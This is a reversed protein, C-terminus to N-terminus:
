SGRQIVPNGHRHLVEYALKAKEVAADPTVDAFTLARVIDRYVRDHPIIVIKMGVPHFFRCHLIVLIHITFSCTKALITLSIAFFGTRMTDMCPEQKGLDM